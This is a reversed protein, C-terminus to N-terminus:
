RAPGDEDAADLGEAAAGPLIREPHDLAKDVDGLVGLWIKVEPWTPAQRSLSQCMRWFYRRANQAPLARTRQLVLWLRRWLRELQAATAPADVPEATADRRHRFVQFAALLVAQSLNLSPLAPSTHLRARVTCRRLDANALGDTENGFVLAVDGHASMATLADLVSEFALPRAESRGTGTTLAVSYVTDALAAPLDDVVDAHKVVEWAHMAWRRADSGKAACRPAVLTLRTLGMNMMARATQGVNGPERTGVLIIRVRDLRPGEPAAPAGVARRHPRALGRERALRQRGARRAPRGADPAAGDGATM